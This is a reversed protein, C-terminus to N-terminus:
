ICLCNKKFIPKFTKHIILYNYLLVTALKSQFDLFTKTPHCCGYILGEAVSLAAFLHTAGKRVYRAAFHVPQKVGAGKNPHLGERAQISTKEDVCM